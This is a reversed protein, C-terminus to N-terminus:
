PFPQDAGRLLLMFRPKAAMFLRVMRCTGRNKDSRGDCTYVDSNDYQTVCNLFSRGVGTTYERETPPDASTDWSTVKSVRTGYDNVCPSPFPLAFKYFSALTKPAWIEGKSVTWATSLM